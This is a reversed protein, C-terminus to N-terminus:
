KQYTVSITPNGYTVEPYGPDKEPLNLLENKRADIQSNVLALSSSIATAIAQLQDLQPDDFKFSRRGNNRQVVVGAPLKDAAIEVMKQYDEESLLEKVQQHLDKAAPAFVHEALAKLLVYRTLLPKDPMFSDALSRGYAHLKTKSPFELLQTLEVTMSPSQVIQDQTSDTM